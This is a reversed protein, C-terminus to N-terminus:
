SFSHNKPADPLLENNPLVAVVLPNNPISSGSAVVVPLVPNSAVPVELAPIQQHEIKSQFTKNLQYQCKKITPGIPYV